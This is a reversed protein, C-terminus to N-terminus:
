LIAFLTYFSTVKITSVSRLILEFDKKLLVAGYHRFGFRWKWFLTEVIAIKMDAVSKEPNCGHNSRFAMLEFFFAFFAVAMLESIKILRTKTVQNM